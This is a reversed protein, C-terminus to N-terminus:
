RTQQEAGYIEGRGNKTKKRGTGSQPKKMLWNRNEHSQLNQTDRKEKRQKRKQEEKTRQKDERCRGTMRQTPHRKWKECEEGVRRERQSFTGWDVRITEGNGISDEVASTGRRGQSGKKGADRQQNKGQGKMIPPARKGKDNQKKEEEASTAKKKKGEVEEDRRRDVARRKERDENEGGMAKGWGSKADAKQQQEAKRGQAEKKKREEGAARQRDRRNM